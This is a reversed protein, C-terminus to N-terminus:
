MGMRKLKEAFDRGLRTAAGQAGNHKKPRNVLFSFVVPKRNVLYGSDHNSLGNLTDDQYHRFFRAYRRM